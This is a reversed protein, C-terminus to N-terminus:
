APLPVPTYGAEAIAAQLTAADAQGPEIEVRHSALDIQVRAEADAEKLARTIAGVCHGCSMDNVEFRITM